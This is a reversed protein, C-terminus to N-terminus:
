ELHVKQHGQKRLTNTLLLKASIFAVQGAIAKIATLYHQVDEVTTATNSGDPSFKLGTLRELQPIKAKYLIVAHRAHAKVADAYFNDM